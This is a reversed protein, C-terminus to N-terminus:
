APAGVQRAFAFLDNRREDPGTHGIAFAINQRAVSEPRAVNASELWAVYGAFWEDLSTHNDHATAIADVISRMSYTPATM